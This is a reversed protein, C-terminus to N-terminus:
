FFFARGYRAGIFTAASQSLTQIAAAVVMICAGAFVTPRRGIGDSFYPAIPFGALAGINQLLCIEQESFGGCDGLM